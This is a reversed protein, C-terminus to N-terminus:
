SAWVILMLAFAALAAGACMLSEGVTFTPGLPRDYWAVRPQPRVPDIPEQVYSRVGTKDGRGTIIVTETPEIFGETFKSHNAIIKRM